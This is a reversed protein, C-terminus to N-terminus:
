FSMNRWYRTNEKSFVSPDGSECYLRRFHWAANEAKKMMNDTVTRESGCFFSKIAPKGKSNIYSAIYAYETYIRGKPKTTRFTVGKTPDPGNSSNPMLKRLRKNDLMAARLLREWSGYKEIKYIKGYDKKEKLYRMQAFKVDPFSIGYGDEELAMILSPSLVEKICSPIKSLGRKQNM